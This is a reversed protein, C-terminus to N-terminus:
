VLFRGLGRGTGLQALRKLFLRRFLAFRLQCPFDSPVHTTTDM